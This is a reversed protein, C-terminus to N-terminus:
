FLVGQGNTKAKHYDFHYQVYEAWTLAKDCMDLFPYANNVYAQAMHDLDPDLLRSDSFIDLLKIGKRQANGINM